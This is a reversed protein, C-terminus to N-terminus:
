DAFVVEVAPKKGWHQRLARRAARRIDNANHPASAVAAAVARAIDPTEPIGFMEVIPADTQGIIVVVLGSEALDRREQLAEDDDSVLIRGDLYLRGTPVRDIKRCQGPALQVVDGNHICLPEPVGLEQALAAHSALHQAEGHVPIAARPRTLRYMDTLEDRCPHGSVHLDRAEIIEVGRRVLRNKLTRIDTENGPIIRSSFIVLDNEELSLDAHDDRALRGLAAYPEGQSGTCIVLLKDRPVSRADFAEVLEPFDDLYGTARAARYIKQMGYGLLLPRRGCAAGARAISALRAINSAFSTVVVRGKKQAAITDRMADAVDAESGSRGEVLANTSDCIIADIGAKGLAKLRGIEAKNGIVPDPDIKWDGTQLLSAGGCKIAIACPEAISHTLGIYSIDFAGLTFHADTEIVNLMADDLGADSLKGRALEATFPTAYVPCELRPWLHGLAGIHDEHGHTLLLGVLRDRREEIFSLDPTIVEIGPAESRPFTIGLDVMLWDRAGEEGVGYLNCNMGIEGTGGLPIFVVDPM